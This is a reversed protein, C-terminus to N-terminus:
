VAVPIPFIQTKKWLFGRILQIPSECPIAKRGSLLPLAVDYMAHGRFTGSAVCSRLPHPIGLSQWREMYGRTLASVAKSLVTRAPASLFHAPRFM